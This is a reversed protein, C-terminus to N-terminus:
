REPSRTALLSRQLELLDGLYPLGISHGILWGVAHENMLDKQKTLKSLILAIIQRQDEQRSTTMAVFGESAIRKVNLDDPCEQWLADIFASLVRTNTSLDAMPGGVVGILRSLEETLVCNSKRAQHMLCTHDLSIFNHGSLALMNVAECYQDTDLHGETRAAILVPQLWTTPNQFTAASWLRFGMDESLLLLGNSDAAVAPDFVTQGVVGALTRTSESFDKKPMAPVVAVTARAWSLEKTREDAAKKLVEESFEEFVIRNDRWGIYGRKKGLNRAAEFARFALLDIVSQTTHLPGCVAIIAKELGLRRVISLTIADLVCGKRGHQTIARVAEQRELLAGRCVQFKVGVSPLGSWAALPDKGVLAAAFALPISKSRYEDLIHQDAEARAKTIARIDALPDAAYPDFSFRMLGDARPFRENFQELSCHFADLYIPKIWLVTASKSGIGDQLNFTEGQKKGLLLAALDDKHELRENGFVPYREKEIRYRREHGEIELGVVTNEAVTSAAPMAAGINDNLFILGQYSLHAEPVHWNELLVKYGYQLGRVPDSYHVICAAIRIRVEPLGELKTLDIRNLFGRIDGERGSRQWIGIRALIMEVDNPSQKLYRAIKEDARIDGTNLALIAEAKNFWDRNQVEPSISALIERATVWRRSNITAGVLTHLAESERDMAVRGKLLDVISDDRGLRRAEFSLELRSRLSTHENVIALADEFARNAGSEDTLMRHTLMQLCRLSLNQPEAAVRQAITDIALKGEKRQVYARVRATLLGTRVHRPFGNEDTENILALADDPKKTAVLANAVISIAEPNSPRNPLAKLAGSFDNESYAIIARQLRLSEDDPHQSIAADLIEKAKGVDDVLRLALATNQATSPLLSYDKEIADRAQSYLEAVANNFELLTINQLIGGAIADRNTRTVTDLTAEASFLKLLRSEPFKEAATKALIQWSPNHRARLFCIRAILVKETDHLAEPLQRVPDDCTDDSILAQILTEAADANLDANALLERALRAAEKHNNKLLYGKARNIQANKHEPCERYAEVLITGAEEYHGLKLKASAISVLIRYRESRTANPWEDNQLKLLQTLALKAHGDDIVSQLATIKGHLPTNSDDRESRVATQSASPFRTENGLREVSQALESISLQVNEFGREVYPNFTPDFAKWAEPHQLAHEEVDEWGWVSVRIPRDTAALEATIIRAIEQIKQDRPATTILIFESVSPKFRKAKELEARLEKETVETELKEKCQVGIICDVRGDRYGYVDVGHQKQGLRGNQQTNPDNLVCAFLVRTHSEFDQWNKPKPLSISSLAM